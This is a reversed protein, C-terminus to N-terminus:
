ASGAGVRNAVREGLATTVARYRANAQLMHVAAREVAKEALGDLLDDPNSLLIDSLASAFAEVASRLASEAAADPIPPLARLLLAIAQLEDATARLDDMGGEGVSAAELQRTLIKRAANFEAVNALNADL